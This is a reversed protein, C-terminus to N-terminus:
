CQSFKQTFGENPKTDETGHMQYIQHHRNDTIFKPMIIHFTYKLFLIKSNKLGVKNTKNHHQMKLHPKFIVGRPLGLHKARLAGPFYQCITFVKQNHGFDSKLKLFIASHKNRM